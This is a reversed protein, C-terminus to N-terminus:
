CNAPVYYFDGADVNAVTAGAAVNVTLPTHNASDCLDGTMGAKMYGDYYGSLTGSKAVILYEGPEMELSYKGLTMETDCALEKRDIVSLACVKFDNPYAESPYVAKGTIVGKQSGDSDEGAISGSISKNLKAVQSKLDAIQSNLKAERENSQSKEYLNVCLATGAILLLVLLTFLSWRLYKRGSKQAVPPTNKYTNPEPIQEPQKQDDM